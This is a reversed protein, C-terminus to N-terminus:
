NAHVNLRVARVLLEIVQEGVCLLMRRHAVCDAPWNRHHDLAGVGSRRQGMKPTLPCAFSRPTRAARHQESMGSAAEDGAGSLRLPVLPDRCSFSEVSCKRFNRLLSGALEPTDAAVVQSLTLTVPGR